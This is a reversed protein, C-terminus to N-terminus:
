FLVFCFLVRMGNEPAESGFATLPVSPTMRELYSGTRLLLLEQISKKKREWESGQGERGKKERKIKGWNWLRGVMTTQLFRGQQKNEFFLRLARHQEDTWTSHPAAQPISSCLRLTLLLVGLAWFGVSKMRQGKVPSLERSM